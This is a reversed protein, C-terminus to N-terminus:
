SDDGDEDSKDSEDKSSDDGDHEKDEDEEEDDGDNRAQRRAQVASAVHADDRRDPPLARQKGKHWDVCITQGAFESGNLAALASKADRADMTVYASQTEPRIVLRTFHVDGYQAFLSEVDRVRSDSPLNGVCLTRVMIYCGMGFPAATRKM